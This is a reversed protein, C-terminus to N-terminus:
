NPWANGVNIGHFANWVAREEPGGPGYLDKAASICANRADSYGSASTLYHTLARYWIRGARDNGVGEMGSALYCTYYDSKRNSSSGQSLFFFCRNMPGSLLHTDLDADASSFADPSQGDKSPKYLWRLPGPHSPTALDAGMTWNGGFEGITSGSGGRTYFTVLVGNIDSNSENLGGSEGFYQLGATSSCVGHSLEHGIVDLSDVSKLVDGDGTTVCFCADNWFANTYATDYHVRMTVATGRDDVGKRGYVNAYYDWTAQLGFAADVAATQGNASTTAGGSYNAGDGWINDPETYLAGGDDTTGHAVDLTVNGTKGRTWDRLEYGGGKARRTTNLTVDGSYQSHGLGVAARGTELSSWRKRVEGTHADVLYDMHTTERAGNELELHVHWVLADGSALRAALLETRPARRFAGKPALDKVCTALAEAVPVDPVPDLRLDRVFADTVSRTRPGSRHLIAEGGLVKVGRYYQTIRADHGAMLPDPVIRMVRLANDSTLGFTPALQQILAQDQNVLFAEEQAALFPAGALCLAALSLSRPHISM